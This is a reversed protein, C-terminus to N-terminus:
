VVKRPPEDVQEKGVLNLLIRESLAEQMTKGNKYFRTVEYTTQGLIIERTEM